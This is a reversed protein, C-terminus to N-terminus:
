VVLAVGLLSLVEDIHNAITHSSSGAFLLGVARNNARELILSGSDGSASFPQADLGVIIIQDEFTFTGTDYTVNVDTAVSTVRGATYSTTRGFKHVIMDIAAPTTGTPAGILLVAKVVDSPRVQAIAADVQNTTTGTLPIFRSLEGIRDHNVNGNDLLGPQFIPAGPPLRNEDALVHNNSLIYQGAADKVVAGFTGAMRYADNPARYGISCGPPAPRYRVRPDPISPPQPAASKRRRPKREIKRFLGSQEVDVPLGAIEKPLRQGRTLEGSPYKLRVFVKVAMIGTPKGDAIKEGLGVGQVNQDPEPSAATSMARALGRAAFAPRQLYRESLERKAAIFGSLAGSPRAGREGPAREASARAGARRAGAGRASAASAASARAGEGRATAGLAFITIPDAM